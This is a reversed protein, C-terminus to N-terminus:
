AKGGEIVRLFSSNIRRVEDSSSAPTSVPKGPLQDSWLIRIKRVQFKVLPDAAIGHSDRFPSITTLAHVDRGNASIVPVAALEFGVERGGFSYALFRGVCPQKMGVVTDLGRVVTERDFNSWDDFATTGTLQRGLTECVASGALRYMYSMKHPDRHLICTWPIIAVLDRMTIDTRLPAAEEGRIREWTRLLERSTPHMIMEDYVNNIIKTTGSM